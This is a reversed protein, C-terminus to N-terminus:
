VKLSNSNENEESIPLVIFKNKINPNTQEFIIGINRLIDSKKFIHASVFAVSYGFVVVCVKVREENPIKQPFKLVSKINDDLLKEVGFITLKEVIDNYDTFKHSVSPGYLNVVFFLIKDDINGEYKLVIRKLHPSVFINFINGQITDDKFNFQM